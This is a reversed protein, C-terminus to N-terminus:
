RLASPAARCRDCRRRRGPRGRVIRSMARGNSAREDDLASTEVAAVPVVAQVKSAEYPYPRLLRARGTTGFALATRGSIRAVRLSHRCESPERGRCHDRRDRDRARHSRPLPHDPRPTSYSGRAACRHSGGLPERERRVSIATACRTSSRWGERERKEHREWGQPLPSEGASLPESSTRTRTRSPRPPELAAASRHPPSPPSAKPAVSGAPRITALQEAPM